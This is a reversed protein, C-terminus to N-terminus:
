KKQKKLLDIIQLQFMNDVAGGGSGGEGNSIIMPVKMKAIEAAVGIDTKYKWKATEQPTLGASVLKKNAYAEADKEIKLTMAVVEATQKNIMARKYAISDKQLQTQEAIIKSVAAKEQRLREIIKAKEGQASKLKTEKITAKIKIAYEQILASQKRQEELKKDFNDNFDVDPMTVQTVTIGSHSIAHAIRILKGSKDRMPQKTLAPGNIVGGTTKLSDNNLTERRVQAVDDKTEFQYSGGVLQDRVAFKYDPAAGSAYDQGTFMYPSNSVVERITPKLTANILNEQTRFEKILMRLTEPDDPLKFRVTIKQVGTVKDSFRVPIPTLNGSGEENESTVTVYDKWDTIKGFGRWVIGRKETHVKYGGTPYQVYYNHGESATFFLMNLSFMFATMVGMGIISKISGFSIIFSSSPTRMNGFRDREGNKVSTFKCIIAAIFGLLCIIGLTAIM